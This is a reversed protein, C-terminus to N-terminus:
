SMLNGTRCVIKGGVCFRSKAKTETYIGRRHNVKLLASELAKRKRELKNFTELVEKEEQLEAIRNLLLELNNKGDDLQLQTIDLEERSPFLYNMERLLEKFIKYATIRIRSLFINRIRQKLIFSYRTLNDLHLWVTNKIKM